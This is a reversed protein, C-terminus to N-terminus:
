PAEELEEVLEEEIGEEVETGEEVEIGEEVETVEEIEVEEQDELIKKVEADFDIDDAQNFLCWQQQVEDQEPVLLQIEKCVQVPMEMSRTFKVMGCKESTVPKCTQVPVATCDTKTLNVKGMMVGVDNYEVDYDECELEPEPFDVTKNMPRCEEWTVEKCDDENGAWVKMGKDDLKWLTTCHTKTVNQCAYVEKVHEKITTTKNCRKLPVSKITPIDMMTDVETVTTECEPVMVVDCELDVVELCGAETVEDVVKQVTTTCITRNVMTDYRPTYDILPKCFNKENAYSGGLFCLTSICVILFKM